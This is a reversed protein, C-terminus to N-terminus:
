EGGDDAADGADDTTATDDGVPADGGAPVPTLPEAPDTPKPCGLTFLVTSLVMVGLVLSLLFKKM